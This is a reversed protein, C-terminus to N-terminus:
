EVPVTPPLAPGVTSLDPTAARDISSQYLQRELEELPVDVGPMPKGGVRPLPPRSSIRGRGAKEPAVQGPKVALATPPKVDWIMISIRRNLPDSPPTDKLPQSSAYGSVSKLRDDKVGSAALHVRAASARASSLEWNTFQKGAFPKDDTHGEISIKNPLPVIRSAVLNLIDIAVKSLGPGSSQFMPRGETDVIQIRLGGAVKEVFVQGAIDEGLSDKIDSGLAYSFQQQEISMTTDSGEVAKGSDGSGEGGDVGEPLSNLNELMEQTTKVLAAMQAQADDNEVEPEVTGGGEPEVTGDGESKPAFCGGEMIGPQKAGGETFASPLGGNFVADSMSLENFYEALSAKGAESSIALLWMVLFFAMMATVFDAYAVKWSGGHHGGHGKKIVKKIIPPKKEATM